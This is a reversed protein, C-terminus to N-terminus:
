TDISVDDTDDPTDFDPDIEIRLPDDHPPPDTPDIVIDVPSLMSPADPEIDNNAPDPGPKDRAPPLTLIRDPSM